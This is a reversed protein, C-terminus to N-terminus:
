RSVLYIGNCNLIPLGVIALGACNTIRSVPKLSVFLLHFNVSRQSLYQHVLNSILSLVIYVINYYIVIFIVLKKFRLFYYILLNYTLCKESFANKKNCLKNNNIFVSYLNLYCYYGLTRVHRTSVM